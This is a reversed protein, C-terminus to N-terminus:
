QPKSKDFPAADLYAIIASRQDPPLQEVDARYAIFSVTDKSRVIRGITMRFAHKYCKADKDEFLIDNDDKRILNLARQQCGAPLRFSEVTDNLSTKLLPLTPDHNIVVWMRAHGGERHEPVFTERVTSNENKVLELKWGTM